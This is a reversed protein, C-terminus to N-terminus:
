SEMRFHNGADAEFDRESLFEIVEDRGPESALHIDAAAHLDREARAFDEAADGGEGFFGGVGFELGDDFDDARLREDRGFDELERPPDRVIITAGRFDCQFADQGFDHAVFL